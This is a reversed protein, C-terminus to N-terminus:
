IGRLDEKLEIVREYAEDGPIAEYDFPDKFMKFVKLDKRLDDNELMYELLECSHTSIFYQNKSDKSIVDNCWSGMLGPHLFNEPEEILITGRELIKEMFMMYIFSKLGDGRVEFPIAMKSEKSLLRFNGNTQRLDQFYDIKKKIKNLIKGISKQNIAIDHLEKFKINRESSYFIVNGRGSTGTKGFLSVPSGFNHNESRYYDSIKKQYQFYNRLPESYSVKSNVLKGKHFGKIIISEDNLLKEIFQQKFEEMAESKFIDSEKEGHLPLKSSMQRISYERGLTDIGRVIKENLHGNGSIGSREHIIEFVNTNGDIAVTSHDSGIRILNTFTSYKSLIYDTLIDRNLYDHYDDNVSLCLSLAELITSKGTENRGVFVNIRSLDAIELKEIGKFNELSVDNVM